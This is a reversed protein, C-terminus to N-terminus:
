AVKDPQASSAQPEATENTADARLFKRRARNLDEATVAGMSVREYSLAISNPVERAGTEYRKVTMASAVGVLAAVEALTLKSKHRWAEPTM